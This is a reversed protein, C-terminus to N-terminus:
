GLATWEDPEASARTGELVRDEYRRLLEAPEAHPHAARLAERLAWHPSQARPTLAAPAAQIRQLVFADEPELVRAPPRLAVGSRALHAAIHMACAGPYRLQWDRFALLDFGAAAVADDALDHRLVATPSEPARVAIALRVAEGTPSLGAIAWDVPAGAISVRHRAWLGAADLRLKDLAESLRDHAPDAAGLERRWAVGAAALPFRHGAMVELYPAEAGVARLAGHVTRLMPAVPGTQGDEGALQGLFARWAAATVGLKAPVSAAGIALAERLLAELREPRSGEIWADDI